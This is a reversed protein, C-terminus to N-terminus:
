PLLRPELQAIAAKVWEDIAAYPIEAGERPQLAIVSWKFTQHLDWALNFYRGFSAKSSPGKYGTHRLYNELINLALDAPGSGGYGWEYGTPSHLVVLHPV